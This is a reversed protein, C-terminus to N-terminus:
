TLIEDYSKDHAKALSMNSSFIDGTQASNWDTSSCM